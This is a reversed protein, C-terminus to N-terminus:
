KDFSELYYNSKKKQKEKGDINYVFSLIFYQSENKRRNRQSYEYGNEDVGVLDLGYRYTNFVDSIKFVLKGRDKLINKNIGMDVYYREIYTGMVDPLKSRYYASVQLDIGALLKFMNAINVNWGTHSRNINNPGYEGILSTYFVNGSANIRWWKFAKHSLTIEGGLLKANDLNMFTVLLASDNTASKVRSIAQDINRYYVSGSGSIKELIFRTGTEFSNVYEPKLNPNGIHMNLIDAYENTYPNLMKITPRNIRRNYAIFLNFHDSLSKSVTISPFLNSYNDKKTEIQENSTFEGRLGARVEVYKLKANINIYVANINQLYHFKNALATDNEWIESVTNFSESTFDNFLDKGSLQYGTEFLLSDNVPHSYDFSFVAEKNFQRSDTNQLEKIENSYESYFINDMEHLQDLITYHFNANLVQGKKRFEYLYDLDGDVSYNDLSIDIEKYSDFLTQGNNQTTYQINREATNFKKSGVLSLGIQQNDTISYDYRANLQIDNLIEDQRDYQYYDPADPDEYNERLHEKTQFKTKHSYGGNVYFSNKRSIGSYGLNGGYTKPLGAYMMVTTKHKGEKGSKMVINIIGSMGEADYKASPNNIIEIKEIQDAPIQDLSKVLESKKGNLLLTVKDSGRYQIQGNIDFDVSPLTQMADIATGGTITANKSVNLTTKEISQEVLMKETSVEVESLSFSKKALAINVKKRRESIEVTVEEQNYGMYSALLKYAGFPVDPIIYTGNIDTIAGKKFATDSMSMLQVSAFPLGEISSNDIVLGSIECKSIESAFLNRSIWVLVVFLITKGVRNIVAFNM